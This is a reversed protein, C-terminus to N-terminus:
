CGDKCARRLTLVAIEPPCRFRVPIPGSEGLGATVHLWSPGVKHLGWAMHRPLDDHTWICGWKWFRWQGAHTHGALLLSVRTAPLHWIGSPLHSLVITPGSEPLQPELRRAAERIFESKRPHLGALNLTAGDRRVQVCRNLLLDIGISQQYAALAMKDHNGLTGYIGLPPAIGELLAPLQRRAVSLWHPHDLLDGTSVLLDPQLERIHRNVQQIFAPPKPAHLDGVQVIRLGELGAPLDEIRVDHQAISINYTKKM